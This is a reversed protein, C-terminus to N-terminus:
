VDADGPRQKRKNIYRAGGRRGEERNKGVLLALGEWTGLSNNFRVLINCCGIKRRGEEKVM